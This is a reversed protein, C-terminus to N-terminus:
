LPEDLSEMADFEDRLQDLGMAGMDLVVQHFRKLDFRAGLRGKVRDRGELFVREGVKYSIAQGPMGLYRDVESALYEPPHGTHELLFPLGLDSTWREGPHFREGSPIRMECHLGIDLIVRAARLAQGALWGLEYVPDDLYGLEHMLREAYLAWGEGHGAISAGLRQFRTLSEAQFMMQALQLHHGPTSEHYQTSLADWLPFREKDAVQHWIQGPRVFDESPPTYYTAQPGGAPAAMAQCRRLPEAIDFYRGHLDDMTRDIVEQSWALFNDAGTVVYHPDLQLQAICDNRSAGPAIRGILESMRREIGRLDHWAWDYAEDLDLDTGNHFRAFLRYREAGVPDHTSGIDAYDGALWTGFATFAAAASAAERSLDLVDCEATLEACFGDPDGWVDCQAACALAQRRAAVQENAAAYLFSARLQDLADPVAALRTRINSWDDESERPMYDFVDRVYAHHSNLVSLWRHYEGSDILDLEAQVRERMVEVAVRDARDRPAITALATLTSRQLDRRAEWGQPSYDTLQHDFGPIGWFSALIPDLAACELIYSDSLEFIARTARDDPMCGSAGQDTGAEM